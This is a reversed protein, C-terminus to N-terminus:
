ELFADFPFTKGIGAGTTFSLKKGEPDEVAMGTFGIWIMLEKVKVGTLNSMKKDHVFATVEKAYSVNKGIKKFNHTSDKKSKIWLFGSTRNYGLEEIDGGLSLLGRPLHNEVLIDAAKQKCVNHGTFIDAGARNSAILQAM